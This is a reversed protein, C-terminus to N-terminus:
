NTLTMSVHYSVSALFRSMTVNSTGGSRDRILAVQGLYNTQGVYHGDTMSVRMDTSMSLCLLGIGRHFM